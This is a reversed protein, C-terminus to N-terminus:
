WKLFEKPYAFRFMGDSDEVYNNLLLNYMDDLDQGNNLDITSWVFGKVLTLPEKQIDDVSKIEDIPGNVDVINESHKVVPQTSWFKHEKDIDEGSIAPQGLKELLMKQQEEVAGVSTGLHQKALSDIMAQISKEDKNESEAEGKKVAAAFKAFEPSIAELLENRLRHTEPDNEDDYDKSDNNSTNTVQDDNVSNMTEQILATVGQVQEMVEGSSSISSSLLNQETGSM